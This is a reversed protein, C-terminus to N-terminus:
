MWRTYLGLLFQHLPCSPELSLIGQLKPLFNEDYYVGEKRSFGRVIFKVKYKEISGDAAHKIKYVQRSDIASKRVLRLVIKSVDNKLTSNYEETISDQWVQEARAEEFNSPESGIISSM